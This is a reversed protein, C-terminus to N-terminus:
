AAAATTQSSKYDPDYLTQRELMVCLVYLLRDGVGRLARAHSHGRRRLEAYRWKSAEDRQTAVRAWHHMANELRKNCAHRRLVVCQKGSRKTVPAQGSLARLSHYDRQRLPEPAEVLLTALNIRGLGPFSRLIAVDRQENIQGPPNESTPELRACLEDLKRDAEKAQQNVLRLRAAVTRVHATAAEAVGPAVSLPSQRLMRLVEATDIRRIRHAKLIDAITKETIQAATAPTPAQEWLDLFWDASIDSGGLELAKPYYRWLQDRIRNALRTREDRLEDRIRSWERLEIVVPDEVALRRLAHRDTRLADALVHADRSDDKAGAVTFRDRFRDVQKPNMSYVQFGRELLAEVIPGHPTEIAVAIREPAGGAHRLLWDCLESLGDGGHVVEREGVKGGDAGLLCIRHKQSAWDIGVFWRVEDTM